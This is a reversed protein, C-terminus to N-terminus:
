DNWDRECYWYRERQNPKSTKYRFIASLVKQGRHFRVTATLENTTGSYQISRFWRDVEAINAQTENHFDPYRSRLRADLEEQVEDSPIVDKM